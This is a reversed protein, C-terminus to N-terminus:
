LWSGLFVGRKVVASNMDKWSYIIICLAAPVLSIMEFFSFVIPDIRGLAEKAVSYYTAFLITNLLFALGAVLKM